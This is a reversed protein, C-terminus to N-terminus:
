SRRAEVGRLDGDEDSWPTVAEFGVAALTPALRTDQDGGLEIALRGGPRLLRAADIVVRRALDLGDAGGDLARRPEFAAVDAPLFRLEGTPVYPVVATVLAFAGDPFPSGLDAVVAAVGNARACRVAARDVDAAVALVGPVAVALHAAVAGVGTCLDVARDGPALGTAARRALGETHPRPVYVGPDVRMTRGCFVTTGTLWALPEGRERRALWRELAARDPAADLLQRAEDDAALCGARRLRAAIPELEPSSPVVGAM